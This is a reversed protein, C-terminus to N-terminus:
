KTAAKLHRENYVNQLSAVELARLTLREVRQRWEIFEHMKEKEAPRKEGGLLYLWGANLVTEFAAPEPPDQTDDLTNPPLDRGLRCQALLLAKVLFGGGAHAKPKKDNTEKALLESKGMCRSRVYESLKPVSLDVWRYAIDVVKDQKLAARDSMPKAFDMLEQVQHRYGKLLNRCEGQLPEEERSLLTDLRRWNILGRLHKKIEDMCIRLRLRRPPYRRGDATPIKDPSRIGVIGYLAFIAAPGLLYLGVLDAGIEQVARKRYEACASLRRLVERLRGKKIEKTEYLPTTATDAVASKVIEKQLSEPCSAKESAMYEEVVLHGIEHVLAAHLLVSRRELFPFSIIHLCGRLGGLCEDIKKSSLAYEVARRIDAVLDSLVVSYNYRWKPRILLATNPVIRQAFGQLPRVLSWPVRSTAAGDAFRLPEYLWKILGDVIRILKAATEPRYSKLGRVLLLHEALAQALSGIARALEPPEDGPFDANAVREAHDHLASARVVCDGILRDNNM